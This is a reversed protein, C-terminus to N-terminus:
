RHLSFILCHELLKPSLDVKISILSLVQVLVQLAVRSLFMAINVEKSQGPQAFCCGKEQNEIAQITNSFNLAEALVPTKHLPM